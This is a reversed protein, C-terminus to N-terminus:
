GIGYLPIEIENKACTGTPGAALPLFLGMSVGNLLCLRVPKSGHQTIPLPSCLEKRVPPWSLMQVVDLKM